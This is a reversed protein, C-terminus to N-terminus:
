YNQTNKKYMIEGLIFKFMKETFNLEASSRGSIPYGCILQILFKVGTSETRIQKSFINIRYAGPWTGDIM